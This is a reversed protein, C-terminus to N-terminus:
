RSSSNRLSFITAANRGGSGLYASILGCVEAYVWKKKPRGGEKGFQRQRELRAKFKKLEEAKPRLDGQILRELEKILEDKAKVSSPIAYTVTTGVSAEAAVGRVKVRTSGRYRDPFHAKILDKLDDQKAAWLYVAEADLRVEGGITKDPIDGRKRAEFLRSRLRHKNTADALKQNLLTALWDVLEKQSKFPM